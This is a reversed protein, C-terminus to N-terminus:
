HVQIRIGDLKTDVAFAGGIKDAATPIDPASAALMPRVTPPLRAFRIMTQCKPVATLAAVSAATRPQLLHGVRSM